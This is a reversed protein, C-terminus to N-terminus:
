TMLTKAGCLIQLKRNVIENNSTYFMWLNRRIKESKTFFGKISFKM